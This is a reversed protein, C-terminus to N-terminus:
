IYFIIGSIKVPETQTVTVSHGNLDLACYTNKTASEDEWNPNFSSFEMDAYLTVYVTAGFFGKYGTNFQKDFFENLDNEYYETVTSGVTTTYYVQSAGLALIRKGALSETVELSSLATREKELAFQWGAAADVKFLTNGQGHYYGDAVSPPVITEGVPVQVETGDPYVVTATEAEAFATVSLLVALLSAILTIFFFKAARKM